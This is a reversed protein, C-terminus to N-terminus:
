SSYGVILDSLKTLKKYLLHNLMIEFCSTMLKFKSMVIWWEWEILYEVHM